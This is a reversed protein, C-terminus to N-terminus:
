PEIEVLLDNKGVADGKTVHVSRIIGSATSRLENEMKMAELVLLGEGAQVMQGEEVNLSLVLGPMPARVEVNGSGGTPAVGLRELLLATEDQLEVYLETGDIQVLYRNNGEPTIMASLSRGDIIISVISQDFTAISCTRPTGNILVEADRLEVEIVRDDM